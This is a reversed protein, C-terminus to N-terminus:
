SNATPAVFRRYYSTLRIAGAGPNSGTCTIRVKAAAAQPPSLALTTALSGDWQNTCVSTTGQTKTANASCFRASSTPDGVAWNTTTTIATTVRATVADIIAGAPLLNATTDTTLGVTSLTLLESISCELWQGGKATTQTATCNEVGDSAAAGFQNGGIVQWAETNGSNSGDALISYDGRNTLTITTVGDILDSSARSITSTNATSDIKKFYFIQGTNASSPLTYAVTNSTADCRRVVTATSAAQTQTLTISAATDASQALRLIGISFPWQNGNGSIFQCLVTTCNLAANGSGGNGGFDIRGTNDPTAKSIEIRGDTSTITFKGLSTGGFTGGSPVEFSGAIQKGTINSNGTQQTGPTTAKLLIVNDTDCFIRYASPGDGSGPCPGGIFAGQTQQGGIVDYAITTAGNAQSAGDSAPMGPSTSGQGLAFSGISLLFLATLLKRM